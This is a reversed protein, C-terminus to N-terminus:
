VAAEGHPQAAAAEQVAARQAQKSRRHARRHQVKHIFGERARAVLYRCCRRLCCCAASLLLYCCCLLLLLDTLCSNPRAFESLARKTRWWGHWVQLDQGTLAIAGCVTGPPACWGGCGAVNRLLCRLQCASCYRM